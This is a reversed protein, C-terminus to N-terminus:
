GWIQVMYYKKNNLPCTTNGGGNCTIGARREGYAVMEINALALNSLDNNNQSAYNVNVAALAVVAVAASGLFFKKRM